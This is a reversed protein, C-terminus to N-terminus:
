IAESLMVSLPAKGKEEEVKMGAKREWRGRIGKMDGYAALCASDSLVQKTNKNSGRSMLIVEMADVFSLEPNLCCVLRDRHDVEM